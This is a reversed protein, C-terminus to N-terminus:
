RKWKDLPCKKDPAYVNAPFGCGCESCKFGRVVDEKKSDETGPRVAHRIKRHVKSGDGKEVIQNIIRFLGSEVLSPCEKCIAARELAVEEVKPDAGKPGSAKLYNLWGDRINKLISM